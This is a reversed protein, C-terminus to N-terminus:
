AAITLGASATAAKSTGGGLFNAQFAKLIDAVFTQSPPAGPSAPTADADKTPHHHHAGGAKAAGDAQGTGDNQFKSILSQLDAQLKGLPDATSPAAAPTNGSQLSTLAAQLDTALTAFPNTGGSGRTAGTGPTASSPSGTDKVWNPPPPRHPPVASTQTPASANISM